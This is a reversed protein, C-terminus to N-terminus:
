GEVGVGYEAIAKLARKLVQRMFYRTKPTYSEIRDPALVDSAMVNVLTLEDMQRDGTKWAANFRRRRYARQRCADSCWKRKTGDPLDEFCSGCTKRMGSM